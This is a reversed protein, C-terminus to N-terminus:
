AKVEAVRNMTGFANSVCKPCSQNTGECGPECCWKGNVVFKYGHHGPPLDLAVEWNGGASKILPTAASDWANFTGALFVEHGEPVLSAFRTAAPRQRQTLGAM